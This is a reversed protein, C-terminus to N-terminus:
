SEIVECFALQWYMWWGNIKVYLRLVGTFDYFGACGEFAGFAADLDIEDFSTNHLLIPLETFEPINTTSVTAGVTNANTRYAEFLRGAVGYLRGDDSDGDEQHHFLTGQVSFDDPLDDVDVNNDDGTHIRLRKTDINEDYADGQLRRDNNGFFGDFPSYRFWRAGSKVWLYVNSLIYSQSATFTGTTTIGICGSENGFATDLVSDIGSPTSSVNKLSIRNSVNSSDSDSDGGTLNSLNIPNGGSQVFVDSGSLAIDGNNALSDTGVRIKNSATISGTAGIDDNVGLGAASLTMITVPNHNRISWQFFKNSPVYFGMINTTVGSNSGIHPSTNTLDIGDNSNFFIRDVNTLDYTGLDFDGDDPTISFATTIADLFNLSGQTIAEISTVLTSTLRALGAATNSTILLLKTAVAGSINVIHESVTETIYVINDAVTETIHVLNNAITNTIRIIATAVAGSINVIHESVTETIYVINDAVTETIHVLNNAITNTIRIIATAVAGSINVIHESVTETIYVINDAVTETIHM